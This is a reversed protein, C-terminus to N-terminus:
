DFFDNLQNGLHNELEILSPFIISLSNIKEGELLKTHEAFPKLLKIIQKVKNWQTVSLHDFHFEQCFDKILKENILFWNLVM